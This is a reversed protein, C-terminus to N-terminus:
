PASKSVICSLRPCLSLLVVMSKNFLFDLFRFVECTHFPESTRFSIYIKLLTYNKYYRNLIFSYPKGRKDRMKKMLSKKITYIVSSM